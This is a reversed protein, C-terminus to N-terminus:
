KRREWRSCRVFPKGQKWRTTSDTCVWSRAQLTVTPPPEPAFMAYILAAVMFLGLGILAGQVGSAVDGWFSM